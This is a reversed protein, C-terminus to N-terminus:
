WNLCYQVGPTTRQAFKRSSTETMGKLERRARGENEFDIMETEQELDWGEVRIGKSGLQKLKLAHDEGQVLRCAM